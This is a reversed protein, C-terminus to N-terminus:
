SQVYVDDPRFGQKRADAQAQKKAESYRGDFWHAESLDDYHPKGYVFAWHGEGRPKHGNASEYRDSDFNGLSVQDTIDESPDDVPQEIAKHEHSVTGGIPNPHTHRGQPPRDVPPHNERADAQWQEPGGRGGVPWTEGQKRRRVEENAHSTSGQQTGAEQIPAQGGPTAFKRIIARGPNQDAKNFPDPDGTPERNDEPADEYPEGSPDRGSGSRYGFNKGGPEYQERDPDDRSAEGTSPRGFLERHQRDAGHGQEPDDDKWSGNASDDDGGGLLHANGHDSIFWSNPWFQEKEMYAKVDQDFTEPTTRLVLKGDQYVNTHDETTLDGEEPETPDDYEDEGGVLDPDEEENNPNDPDYTYTSDDEEDDGEGEAPNAGGPHDGPQNHLNLEESDVKADEADMRDWEPQVKARAQAAGQAGTGWDPRDSPKIRGGSTPRNDNGMKDPLARQLGMHGEPVANALLPADSADLDTFDSDYKGESSTSSEPQEYDESDDDTKSVIPTQALRIAPTRRPGFQPLTNNVRTM